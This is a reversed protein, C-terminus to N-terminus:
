KVPKDHNGDKHYEVGCEVSGDANRKCYGNITGCAPVVSALILLALVRLLKKM